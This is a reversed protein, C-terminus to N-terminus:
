REGSERRAIRRLAQPPHGFTRVFARRMREPDVFGVAQAIGEISENSQEIRAKAAETRLREVAKAPTQGTETLFIRGFQRPSLGAAKALQGVSMVECLYTRAFSLARQVRDSTSELELSAPKSLM